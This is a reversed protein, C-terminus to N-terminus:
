TVACCHTVQANADYNAQLTSSTMTSRRMVPGHRSTPAPLHPYIGAGCRAVMSFVRMVVFVEAPATARVNALGILFWRALGILFWRVQPFWKVNCSLPVHLYLGICLDRCFRIGSSFVIMDFNGSVLCDEIEADFVCYLAYKM